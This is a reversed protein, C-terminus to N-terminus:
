IFQIHFRCFSHHSPLNAPAALTKTTNGYSSHLALARSRSTSMLTCCHPVSTHVHWSCLQVIRNHIRHLFSGSVSRHKGEPPLPAWLEPAGRCKGFAELDSLYARWDYQWESEDGFEHTQQLFVVVQHPLQIKLSAASSPGGFCWRTGRVVEFWEPLGAAIMRVWKQNLLAQHLCWNLHWPRQGHRTRMRAPKQLTM